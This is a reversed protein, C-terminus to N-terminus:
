RHRGRGAARFAPPKPHATAKRAPSRGRGQGVALTNGGTEPGTFERLNAVGNAAFRNAGAGSLPVPNNPANFLLVGYLRNGPARGGGPNTGIANGVVANNQSSNAHGLIYVGAQDNGTIVNSASPSTGGITNNSADQIGVGIPQIYITTGPKAGPPFTTKGDLGLGITNGQIMNGSALPGFLMVGVQTNGSIVNGAGPAGIVNGPLGNVYIGYLNGQAVLGSRDTGILNGLM